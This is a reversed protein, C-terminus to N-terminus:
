HSLCLRLDGAVNTRLRGPGNCRLTSRLILPDVAVVPIGGEPLSTILCGNATARRLAPWSFMLKVSRPEGDAYSGVRCWSTRHCITWFATRMRGIM